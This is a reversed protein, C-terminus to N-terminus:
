LHATSKKTGRLVERKGGPPGPLREVTFGAAQLMRRVNGKSCYTTLIGQDNLIVYLKNFLEQSWMEPQKDPAFADFYIIDPAPVAQVNLSSQFLSTFDEKKKNLTFSSTLYIDQNWASTHIEKFLPNPSYELAEITEWTLPNREIGTYHIKRKSCEAEQLTLFANLGTGFGIELVHLSPLTCHQLGLCIFIHQSETRAGKISHYHEDIEPIYLTRSGDATTEIKM